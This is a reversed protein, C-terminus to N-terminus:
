RVSFTRVIQTANGQRDKALEKGPQPVGTNRTWQQQTQVGVRPDSEFLADAM